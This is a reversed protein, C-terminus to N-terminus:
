MNTIKLTNGNKKMYDFFTRGKLDGWGTPREQEPMRNVGANLTALANEKQAVASTAESLEQKCRELEDTRSTLAAKAANLESTRTELQNEFDKIKADYEKRLADIQKAMRAQMGSVRKRCEAETVTKDEVPAVPEVTEVPEVPEEAQVQREEAVPQEEAVTQTPEEAQAEPEVVEAQEAVPEKIDEKVEEMDLREIDPVSNFRGACKELAKRLAAVAKLPEGEREVECALGFQGAQSGLIWTEAKLLDLLTDKSLNFKSQYISVLANTFNDLVEAEKRMDESNGQVVSWPLHIMLMSNAGLVLRKCACAIVSAMSAALGQVRATTPHGESEAMRIMNAMALGASCSGGPSNIEIVLEEGPALKKIVAKLQTPTADEFSERDADTDVIAGYLSFNM